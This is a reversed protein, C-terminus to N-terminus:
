LQYIVDPDLVMLLENPLKVVKKVFGTLDGDMNAPPQEAENPDIDVVSGPRDIPFGILDPLDPQPKLVVCVFREQEEEAGIRLLRALHLLTVVQGRMNFLGVIHAPSDPIPTCEVNRQIEKVTHIDLGFLSGNLYFTLVKGSM